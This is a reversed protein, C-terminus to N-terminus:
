VAYQFLPSYQGGLGWAWCDWHLSVCTTPYFSTGARPFHKYPITNVFVVMICFKQISTHTTSNHFCALQGEQMLGDLPTGGGM